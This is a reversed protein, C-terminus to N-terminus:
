PKEKPPEQTLAAVVDVVDEINRTAKGLEYSTKVSQAGRGLAFAIRRHFVLVFVVIAAGALLPSVFVVGVALVALTIVAWGIRSEETQEAMEDSWRM